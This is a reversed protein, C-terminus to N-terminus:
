TRTRLRKGILALAGATRMSFNRDAQPRQSENSSDQILSRLDDITDVDRWVPLLGIRLGAEGARDRTAALVRDGSWPIDHFLEPAPRTLGMLYYGGDQAPGLVLDHSGLTEFAQRYHALPLSPVDTGVLVVRKFGQAFLSAFAAHMRAGLDAGEQDLLQVGHREAMIKFFVHTSSPACALIRAAPLRFKAIAAKTRELTDLVFSGHLSAAEDPTLPPCLRTKVQGPIPAKAFIVLAAEAQPVQPKAVSGRREGSTARRTM